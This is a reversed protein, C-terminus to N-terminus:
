EQERFLLNRRRYILFVGGVGDPTVADTRPCRGLSSYTESMGWLYPELVNGIIEEFRKKQFTAELSVRLYGVMPSNSPGPTQKGV